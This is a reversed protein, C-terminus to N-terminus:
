VQRWGTLCANAIWVGAWPNYHWRRSGRFEDGQDTYRGFFLGRPFRAPVLQKLVPSDLFPEKRGNVYAFEPSLNARWSEPSSTYQRAQRPTEHIVIYYRGASIELFTAMSVWEKLAYHGRDTDRNWPDAAYVRNAARDVDRVVVFHGGQRRTRDFYQLAIVPKGAKVAAEINGLYAARDEGYRWSVRYGKEQLEEALKNVYAYGQHQDGYAEDHWKDPNIFVGRLCEHIDTLCAFGCNNLRNSNRGYSYLKQDYSPLLSRLISATM